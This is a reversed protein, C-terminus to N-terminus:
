SQYFASRAWVRCALVQYLLRRNVMINLGPDPTMVRVAGLMHAWQRQVEVLVEKAPGACDRVLRRIQAVSEAQGLIFAIERTDGPALAIKAMLAGCPDLAPGIRG